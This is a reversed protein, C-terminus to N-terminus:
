EFCQVLYARGVGSKTSTACSQGSAACCWCAELVEARGGPPIVSETAESAGAADCAGNVAPASRLVVRGGTMNVYTPSKEVGPFALATVRKVGSPLLRYIVIVPVGPEFGAAEAIVEKDFRWSLSEGKDSKMIVTNTTANVTLLTGYVSKHPPPADGPERAPAAAAVLFALVLAVALSCLRSRAM